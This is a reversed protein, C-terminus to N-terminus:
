HIPSPAPAIPGTTAAEAEAGIPTPEAALAAPTPPTWPGFADVPGTPSIGDAGTPPIPIPATADARELNRLEDVFEPGTAPSLPVPATREVLRTMLSKTAAGVDISPGLNPVYWTLLAGLGAILLNAVDVQATHGTVVTAVATLVALVGSVAAKAWPLEPVNPVLYTLTASAVAIGIPLLDVLRFGDAAAAQWSTVGAILVAAVAAVVSKAYASM